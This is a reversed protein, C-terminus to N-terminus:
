VAVLGSRVLQLPGTSMPMPEVYRSTCTSWTSPMQCQKALPVGMIRCAVAGDMVPGHVQSGSRESQSLKSPGQATCSVSPEHIICTSGIYSTALYMVLGSM